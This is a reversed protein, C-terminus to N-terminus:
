WPPHFINSGSICGTDDGVLADGEGSWNEVTNQSVPAVLSTQTTIVGKVNLGAVTNNVGWTAIGTWGGGFSGTIGSCQGTGAVWNVCWTFLLDAPNTTSMTVTATTLTSSFDSNTATLSGNSDWPVSTNGIGKVAIGGVAWRVSSSYTVTITDSTLAGSSYAWYIDQAEISNNSFPGCSTLCTYSHRTGRPTWTLSAGDAVTSIGAPASTSTPFNIAYILIVIIDGASPTTFKITASTGVGSNNVGAGGVVDISPATCSWANGAFIQFFLCVWVCFRKM